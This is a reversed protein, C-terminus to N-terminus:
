RPAPSDAWPVRCSDSGFGQATIGLAHNFRARHNELAIQYTLEVVGAAGFRETLAAVQEDTVTTPTATMAEAYAIAAREDEDFLPSTAYEDIHRLRDVDLSDLRMLMTGFDVCWSCGVITAARYVALERVAAPLVRSARAALNEHLGYALLLKPHHAMITVPEPVEGYSRKTVRYVLRTFWGAARPPVAPLRTRSDTSM